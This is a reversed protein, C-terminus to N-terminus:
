ERTERFSFESLVGKYLRFFLFTILKIMEIVPSSNYYLFLSVYEIITPLICHKSLKYFYFVFCDMHQHLYNAHQHLNMFFYAGAVSRAHTNCLEAVLHILPFVEKSSVSARTAIRSNFPLNSFVTRDQCSSNNNVSLNELPVMKVINEDPPKLFRRCLTLKFFCNQFICAM